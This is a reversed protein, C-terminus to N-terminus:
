AKTQICYRFNKLELDRKPVKEPNNEVVLM